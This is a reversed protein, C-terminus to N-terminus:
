KIADEKKREQIFEDLQLGYKSNAINTPLAKYITDLFTVKANYIESLAIYPAIESDKNNMAFNIAYLYKRRMLNESDKNVQSVLIDDGSKQADFKAKILELNQDNFKSNISKFEELKENLPSGMIKADFEFRKLTSNITIMGPVAFFSIRPIDDGANKDLTLYLMEPAKLDNTLVFDDEGNYIVSDLVVLITDKLQQLYLTGKKLGKIQGTVTMNPEVKSCSFITLVLLFPFLQKM